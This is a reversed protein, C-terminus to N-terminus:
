TSRLFGMAFGTGLGVFIGLGKANYSLYRLNWFSILNTMALCAGM